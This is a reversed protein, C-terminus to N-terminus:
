DGLAHTLDVESYIEGKCEQKMVDIITRAIEDRLDYSVSEVMVRVMPQTGSARVSIRGNGRLRNTADELTSAVLPSDKWTSQDEVKVNILLQPWPEFSEYLVDSTKSTLQMVRLLELATVIGDGTPGLQKFIIHGSQEGGIIARNAEMEEAVYRDGVAARVLRIGNEKLHQEFGGNSMVTGVVIPPDMKGQSRWYTSWIWM